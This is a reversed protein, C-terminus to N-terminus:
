VQFEDRASDTRTGPPTQPDSRVRQMFLPGLEREAMLLNHSQCLLRINDTSAEGGLAFAREHHYQLRERAQCRHGEASVFSCRMGDRRAVKGPVTVVEPAGRKNKSKV